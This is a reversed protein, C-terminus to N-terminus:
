EKKKEKRKKKKRWIVKLVRRSSTNHTEDVNLFLLPNVTILVGKVDFDKFWKEMSDYMTCRQLDIAVPKIM